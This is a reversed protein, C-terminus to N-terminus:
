KFDHPEIDVPQSQDYLSGSSAPEMLDRTNKQVTVAAFMSLVFGMAFFGKTHLDIATAKYLGICLLGISVVVAVWSIGLYIDTVPVNELRDRVAKQISVASFLGLALVAFYYGKEDIGMANYWLGALFGAVGTILVAWSTVVFAISPQQLTHRNM